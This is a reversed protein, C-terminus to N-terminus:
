SNVRNKDLVIMMASHDSLKNFRPYHLYECNTIYKIIDKSLFGYDLRQSEGRGQWSYERRDPNLFKFIDILSNNEFFNYFYNWRDFQPYRPSHDPELINFDGAIILHLNGGDEILIKKVESIFNDQFKKKMSIRETERSNTPIYAGILGVKGIFTDLEIFVIRQQELGINMEKEKYNINKLAIITFYTNSKHYIFKYGFSELQGRIISFGNSDKVETLILVDPNIKTIWDIQKRARDTSPNQINWLLIKLKTNDDQAEKLDADFLSIQYAM